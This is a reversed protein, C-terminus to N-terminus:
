GKPGVVPGTPTCLAGGHVACDWLRRAKITIPAQGIPLSHREGRSWCDISSVPACRASKPWAHQTTLPRPYPRRSAAPGTALQRILVRWCCPLSPTGM